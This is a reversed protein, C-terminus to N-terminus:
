EHAAMSMEEADPEEEDSSVDLAADGVSVFTVTALDLPALVGELFAERQQVRYEV